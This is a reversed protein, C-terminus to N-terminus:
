LYKKQWSEKLPLEWKNLLDEKTTILNNFVITNETVVGDKILKKFDNLASIVVESNSKHAVSFRDFFSLNYQEGFKKFLGTFSDISCGSAAQKQEDAAVVVFCNHLLIHSAHMQAGHASWQEVFSKLHHDISNQEEAALVRDSQFVWVSSDLSLEDFNVWM